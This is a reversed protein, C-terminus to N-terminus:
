LFWYERPTVAAVAAEVHVLAEEREFSSSLPLSRIRATFCQNDTGVERRLSCPGHSPIAISQEAELLTATSYKQPLSNVLM